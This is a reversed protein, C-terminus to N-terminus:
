VIEIGMVDTWVVALQQEMATQPSETHEDVRSREPEPLAQRDLKGAPNLPLREIRVFVSPVMYDPLKELLYHRLDSDFVDDNPVIYSTLFGRGSTDTKYTVVAQAVAHHSALAAEIEGLEIRIGRIQVQLDTRGIFEVDGSPQWRVQDGSRYLRKGPQDSFPDPVFREATLQPRQFYGWGVADGGIYLEGPVGRPVPRLHEDLIYIETGSRPRGLSVDQDPHADWFLVSISAETPGYGNLLNVGPMKTLFADKLERNLAEGGSGVLKIAPAERFSKLELLPLLLSPVINWVSTIQQDSFLAAFQTLDRLTERDAVVMAAGSSLPLFHDLVSADFILASNHLIRDGPGLSYVASGWAIRGSPGRHNLMVAKPQGTSGSTYYLYALDDLSVPVDPRDQPQDDLSLADLRLTPQSEPLLAQWEAQTLVAKPGIPALMGQIREAPYGM